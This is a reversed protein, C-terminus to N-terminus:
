INNSLLETSWLIVLSYCFRKPPLLFFYLLVILCLLTFMFREAAHHDSALCSIVFFFLSFTQYFVRCNTRQTSLLLLVTSAQLCRTLGGSDAQLRSGGRKVDGASGVSCSSILVLQETHPVFDTVVIVPSRFVAAAAPHSNNYM